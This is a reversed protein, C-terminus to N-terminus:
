FGDLGDSGTASASRYADASEEVFVIEVNLQHMRAIRNRQLFARAKALCLGVMEEMGVDSCQIYVQRQLLYARRDQVVESVLDAGLARTRQLIRSKDSQMKFM